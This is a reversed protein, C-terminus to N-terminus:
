GRMSRPEWRFRRWAVLGTVVTWALLVAVHGWFRGDIPAGASVTVTAAVGHRLPFAWSIVNLVTPMQEVQIFIGSIFSLPLVLALASATVAQPRDIGAVLAMGCSALCVIVLLFTLLTPAWTSPPLTASFAVVAVAFVLLVTVIGYVVTALIRGALYSWPPLPTGRLRKLTGQERHDAISSPLNLVGTVALGYVALAPALYQGLPLGEWTAGDPSVSVTYVLLLVPFIVAFFLGLTDRRVQVLAYRAQLWVLSLPGPPGPTTVTGAATSAPRAPRGLSVEGVRSSRGTGPVDEDAGPRRSPGATAAGEGPSRGGAQVTAPERGFSRWVLVIGLVAWGTMLALASWDPAAADAAPDFGTSFAEAFPKLPLASALWDLWGPLQAVAFIGSVFSLLILTLNAFARAASPTRATSAVALGLASFCATGVLFTLVLAPVNAWIIQVHYIGVGAAVMLCVAIAALWVASGMRGTVYLVPPLPTGSLRKLVGSARAQAVLAAMLMYSVMCAGFVAFVPTLYQALRLGTAEDIVPNGFIASIVVLCILPFALGFFAGIPTRWFQHNAYRVQALWLQAPASRGTAAGPSPM